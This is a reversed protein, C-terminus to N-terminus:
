IGHPTTQMHTPQHSLTHCDTHASQRPSCSLSPIESLTYVLILKGPSWHCKLESHISTCHQAHPPHLPFDPHWCARLSHQTEAAGHFYKNYWLFSELCMKQGQSFANCAQNQGVWFWWSSRKKVILHWPHLQSIYLLTVLSTYVSFHQSISKQILPLLLSRVALFIPVWLNFWILLGGLNVRQGCVISVVAELWNQTDLGPGNQRTSALQSSRGDSPAM